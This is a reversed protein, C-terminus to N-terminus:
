VTGSLQHRLERGPGPLDILLLVPEDGLVDGARGAVTAAVIM